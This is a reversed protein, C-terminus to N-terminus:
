CQESREPANAEGALAQRRERSSLQNASNRVLRIYQQLKPMKYVVRYPFSRKFNDADSDHFYKSGNTLLKSVETVARDYGGRWDVKDRRMFFAVREHLKPETKMAFQMAIDIDGVTKERRLYSGYIVVEQVFFAFKRNANALPIREVLGSFLQDARALSIRRTLTKKKSEL